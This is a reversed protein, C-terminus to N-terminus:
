LKYSMTLLASIGARPYDDPIYQAAGSIDPDYYNEDFLNHVSGRIELNKYFNSVTFALDVTIYSDSDGRTDGQPRPRPGDWLFDVHGMLYRSLERNLSLTARHNPVYPVELGSNTDEPKQYSYALRWYNKASFEGSVVFELGKVETDGLNAYENPTVTTDRIIQNTIDNYYINLDMQISKAFYYGLGVEYTSIKEPQLDSNGMLSPNNDNYLEGFNPARFAKGYLLKIEGKPMFTWVLGLRPNSTNGFDSYHDHRLGLTLNINNVMEWEDQIYVAYIDRSTNKNWNWNSPLERISGLYEYTNPNFNSISKVDYQKFNEYVTGVMLHNRTNIDFDLQLEGGLTRSKAKPGGIMGNPYTGMFGPPMIEVSDDQEFYDYYLKLNTSIFNTIEHQYVLENWLNTYKQTNSDTLANGFGIYSGRDNYLYHGEYSFHAYSLKLLLETAEYGTDADGPTNTLPTGSFRDRKIELDPGDAKWYNMSSFLEFGNDFIKGGLVSLKKTDFSGYSLSVELGDTNYANKTIVNIVAVFANAGYLASGPGRVVEIQQINEVSLHDALYVLGSGAYNKNISHGDILFLIKESKVTSVGRVEFMFFGQENRSIGLGPVMKLVDMINRAGMDKIENATIVTAIAPAKQLGMERKTATLLLRDTRFFDEEQYESQFYSKVQKLKQEDTLPDSTPIQDAAFAIPALFLLVITTPFISRNLLTRLTSGGQM